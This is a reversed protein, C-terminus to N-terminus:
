RVAKALAGLMKASDQRAHWELAPVTALRAVVSPSGHDFRRIEPAFRLADLDRSFPNGRSLSGSRQSASSSCSSGSALGASSARSTRAMHSGLDTVNLSPMRVIMSGWRAM